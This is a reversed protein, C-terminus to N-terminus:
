SEHRWWNRGPCIPGPTKNEGGIHHCTCYRMLTLEVIGNSQVWFCVSYRIKEKSNIMTTLKINNDTVRSVSIAVKSPGVLWLKPPLFCLVDYLFEVSTPWEDKRTASKVISNNKAHPFSWHDGLRGERTLASGIKTKQGRSHNWLSKWQNGKAEMSGRGGFLVSDSCVAVHM